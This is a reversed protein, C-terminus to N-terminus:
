LSKAFRRWRHERWRHPRSILLHSYCHWRVSLLWKRRLPGEWDVYARCDDEGPRYAHLSAGGTPRFSSSGFLVGCPEGALACPILIPLRASPAGGACGSSTSGAFTRSAMKSPKLMDQLLTSTVCMIWSTFSLPIRTSWTSFYQNKESSGCQVRKDGSARILLDLHHQHGVERPFYIFSTCFRRLDDIAQSAVAAIVAAFLIASIGGPDGSVPRRTVLSLGIGPCTDGKVRTLTFPFLHVSTLTQPTDVSIPPVSIQIQRWNQKARCLSCWPDSMHLTPRGVVSPDPRDSGEFFFCLCYRHLPFISACRRGPSEYFRHHALLIPVECLFKLASSFHAFFQHEDISIKVSFIQAFVHMVQKSVSVISSNLYVFPDTVNLPIGDSRFHNRNRTM